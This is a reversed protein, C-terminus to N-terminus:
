KVELTSLAVDLTLPKITCGSVIWAGETAGRRKYWSLVIFDGDLPKVPISALNQDDSWLSGIRQAEERLKNMTACNWGASTFVGDVFACTPDEGDWTKGRDFCPKCITM